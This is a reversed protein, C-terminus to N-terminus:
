PNLTEDVFEIESLDLANITHTVRGGEVHEIFPLSSQNGDHFGYPHGVFTVGKTPRVYGFDEGGHSIPLYGAVKRTKNGTIMTEEQNPTPKSSIYKVVVAVRIGVGRSVKASRGLRVRKAALLAKGETESPVVCGCIKLTIGADQDAVSGYWRWQDHWRERKGCVDCEHIIGSLSEGPKLDTPDFLKLKNTAM